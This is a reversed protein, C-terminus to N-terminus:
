ARNFAPALSLRVSSATAQVGINPWSTGAVGTAGDGLGGLVTNGLNNRGDHPKKEAVVAM